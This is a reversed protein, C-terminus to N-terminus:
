STVSKMIANKINKAATKRLINSLHHNVTPKALFLSEAIERSTKGQAALSLVEQERKSLGTARVPKCVVGELKCEGRLPCKVVELNWSDGVMDVKTSDYEGMNCRLFRKVVRYRFFPLNGRSQQYEQCLAEFAEPYDKAIKDYIREVMDEGVRLVHLENNAIYGVNGNDLNMWEM